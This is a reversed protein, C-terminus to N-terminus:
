LSTKPFYSSILTITCFEISTFSLKYFTSTSVTCFIHNHRITDYYCLMFSPTNCVAEKKIFVLGVNVNSM